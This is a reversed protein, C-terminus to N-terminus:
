VFFAAPGSGKNDRSGKDRRVNAAASAGDSVIIKLEDRRVEMHYRIIELKRGNAWDRFSTIGGQCGVVM